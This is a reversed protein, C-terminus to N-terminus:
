RVLQRDHVWQNLWEIGKLENDSILRSFRTADDGTGIIYLRIDENSRRGRLQNWAELLVNLGKYSLNIAGHYMVVRTSVPIGLSRRAEEKPAPYFISFDVPSYVHEVKQPPVSYATMVRKAERAAPILLGTCLWMALRRLPRLLASNPQGGQFT